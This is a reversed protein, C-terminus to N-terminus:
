IMDNSPYPQSQFKCSMRSTRERTTTSYASVSYEESISLWVKSSSFSSQFERTEAIISYPIHCSQSSRHNMRLATLRALLSAHPHDVAMGSVSEVMSMKLLNPDLLSSTKFLWDDYPVRGYLDWGKITSAAVSPKTFGVVLLATILVLKLVNAVKSNSFKDIKAIFNARLNDLQMFLPTSSSISSSATLTSGSCASLCINARLSLEFQNKQPLQLAVNSQFNINHPYVKLSSKHIMFGDAFLMWQLLIMILILNSM